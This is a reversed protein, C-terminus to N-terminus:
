KLMIFHGDKRRTLAKARFDIKNPIFVAVGNKNHNTNVHYLKSQDKVKLTNM